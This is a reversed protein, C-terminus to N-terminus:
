HIFSAIGLARRAVHLSAAAVAQLRTHKTVLSLAPFRCDIGGAMGSGRSGASAIQIRAQRELKDKQTGPALTPCVNLDYNLFEYIAFANALMRCYQSSVNAYRGTGVIDSNRPLHFCRRPWNIAISCSALVYVMSRSRAASWRGYETSFISSFRSGCTDGM